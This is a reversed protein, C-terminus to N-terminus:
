KRPSIAQPAGWGAVADVYVGSKQGKGRSLDRHLLVLLELCVAHDM